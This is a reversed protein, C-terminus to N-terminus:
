EYHRLSKIYKRNKAHSNNSWYEDRESDLKKLGLLVEEQSANCDVPIKRFFEDYFVSEYETESGFGDEDPPEYYSSYRFKFYGYDKYFVLWCDLQERIIENIGAKYLLNSVWFSKSTKPETYYKYPIYAAEKYYPCRNLVAKATPHGYVAARILWMAYYKFEHHGYIGIYERLADLTNQSPNLEYNVIITQEEESISDFWFKAMEYMAEVDGMKCKAGLLLKRLSVNNHSEPPNNEKNEAPVADTSEQTEKSTEPVINKNSSFRNIILKKM